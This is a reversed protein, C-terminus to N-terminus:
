VRDQGNWSLPLPFWNEALANTQATYDPSLPGFLYRSAELATLTLRPALDTKECGVHKGEVFIRVKGYDAIELVLEGDPLAQDSAKLKLFASIIKEWNCIKFHSPSQTKMVDCIASFRRVYETMHPQLAFCVTTKKEQQWRCLIDTFRELDVGFVEAVDMGSQDACLYGVPKGDQMCLYPIHEWATMVSYCDKAQRTVAIANENYLRCCFELAQTDKSDIEAFSVEGANPFRSPLTDKNFTFYLVQGCSEFGYRNYRQRNGGLRAADVGLDELEKLAVAILKSMYGKGTHEWRTAINGMTAFRLKEGAVVGDLPYVGICAVLQGDEFIGFHKGMQEDDRVCMKPLMKEFDQEVGNHRTFVENLLPILRDYDEAKLRRLEVM